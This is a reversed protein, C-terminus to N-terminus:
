ITRSSPSSSQNSINRKRPMIKQKWFPNRRIWERETKITVETRVSKLRGSWARDEVKWLEEYHKMVRCIFVRAM